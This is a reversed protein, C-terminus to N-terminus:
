RGVDKEFRRKRALKRLRRKKSLITLTFIPGSIAYGAFVIFLMAPPNLAICILGLVVILIGIFPVKNKFNINKFSHFRINSVMMLALVATIILMLVQFWLGQATYDYWLWVFSALVAAAGPIPLGQFYNKDASVQTNFRALRMAGCAAFLFAGLWGIKGLSSLSWSYVVLAPAVGFSVIDALSDFESGFATQTNTLRAVRGDLADMVMAIFIAHAATDFYGKLAAVISYFGAFLGAATFLNPLLYIGRAKAKEIGERENSMM